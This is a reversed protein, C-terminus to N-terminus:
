SLVEVGTAAVVIAGIATGVVASNVFSENAANNVRTGGGGHHGGHASGYGRDALAVGNFSATAFLVM